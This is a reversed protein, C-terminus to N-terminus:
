PPFHSYNPSDSTAPLKESLLRSLCRMTLWEAFHLVLMQCPPQLFWLNVCTVCHCVSPVEVSMCSKSQRFVFAFVKSGDQCAAICASVNMSLCFESFPKLYPARCKCLHSVNIQLQEINWRSCILWLWSLHHLLLPICNSSSSEELSKKGLLMRIDAEQISCMLAKWVHGM